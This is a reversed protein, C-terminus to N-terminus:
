KKGLQDRERRLQARGSKGLKHAIRSATIKYLRNLKRKRAEARIATVARENTRYNISTWRPRIVDLEDQTFEFRPRGAPEASVVKALADVAADRMKDRQERTTNRLGTSIEWITVPKEPTGKAEIAAFYDLMRKRRHPGDPALIVTKYVALTQGPRLYLLLLDLSQEALSHKLGVRRGEVWVDTIDHKDMASLQSSAKCRMQDRVYGVIHTQKHM